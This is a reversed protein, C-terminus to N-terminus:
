QIAGWVLYKGNWGKIGQYMTYIFIEKEKPLYKSTWLEKPKLNPFHRVLFSYKKRNFSVNYPGYADWGFDTVVDNYLGHVLSGAATILQGIKRAKNVDAEDWNYEKIMKILEDKKHLPNSKEAFPDSPCSEMLMRALFNAVIKCDAPTKKYFRQYTPIIKVLIARISSPPPLLDKIEEFKKNELNLQKIVEAIRAIWLDYWLPFFHYFDLPQFGELSQGAFLGFTGKSFKNIWKMFKERLVM